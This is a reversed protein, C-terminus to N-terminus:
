QPTGSGVGLPVGDSRVSCVGYEVCLRVASPPRSLVPGAASRAVGFWPAHHPRVIVSRPFLAVRRRVPDLGRRRHGVPDEVHRGSGAPYTAMGAPLPMLSRCFTRQTQVATSYEGETHLAGSTVTHTSTLEVSSCLSRTNTVSKKNVLSSIVRYLCTLCHNPPERNEVPSM